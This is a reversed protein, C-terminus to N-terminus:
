AFASHPEARPCLVIKFPLDLFLRKSRENRIYSIKERPFSQQKFSRAALRDNIMPLNRLSHRTPVLGWLGRGGRRFSSRPARLFNCCRPFSSSTACHIRWYLIKGFSSASCKRLLIKSTFPM